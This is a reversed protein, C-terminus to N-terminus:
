GNGLVVDPSGVAQMVAAVVCDSVSDEGARFGTDGTIRLSSTDVSRLPWSAVGIARALGTEIRDRVREPVTGLASGTVIVRDIQLAFRRGTM